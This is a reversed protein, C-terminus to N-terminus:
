KLHTKQTMSFSLTNLDISSIYGPKNIFYVNGQMGASIFYWWGMQRKIEKTKNLGAKILIRKEM